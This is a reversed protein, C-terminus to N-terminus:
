IPYYQITNSQSFLICLCVFLTGLADAHVRRIPLSFLCAPHLHLCSLTFELKVSMGRLWCTAPGAGYPRCCAPPGGAAKDALSSQFCAQKLNLKSCLTSYFMNCYKIFCKKIKIKLCVSVNHYYNCYQGQFKSSLATEIV